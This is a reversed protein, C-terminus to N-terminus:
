IADRCRREIRDKRGRAASMAAAIMTDVKPAIVPQNQGAGPGIVGHRAVSEEEHPGALEVGGFHRRPAQQEPSRAAASTSGSRVIRARTLVPVQVAVQQVIHDRPAARRCGSSRRTNRRRALLGSARAGTGRTRIGATGANYMAPASAIRITRSISRGAVVQGPNTM